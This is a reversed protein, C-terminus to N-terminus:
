RRPILDPKHGPLGPSATRPAEIKDRTRINAPEQVESLLAACDSDKGLGPEIFALISAVPTLLVGLAIAAAGRAALPGKEVGISPRAFRGKVTIPTRVTFISPDKPQTKVRLDLQESRLDMPGEVLITSDTTDLLFVRPSAVGNNM